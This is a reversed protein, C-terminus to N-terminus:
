HKTLEGCKLLLIIIFLEKGWGIRICCLQGSSFTSDWISQAYHQQVPKLIHLVCHEMVPLKSLMLGRSGHSRRAKTRKMETLGSPGCCFPCPSSLVYLSAQPFHCSGERDGEPVRKGQMKDKCGQDSEGHIRQFM